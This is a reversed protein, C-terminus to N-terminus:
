HGFESVFKAAEARGIVHKWADYHKGNISSKKHRFTSHLGLSMCIDVLDRTLEKSGLSTEFTYTDKTITGDCSFFAAFFHGQLIRASTKVKSSLKKNVSKVGRM